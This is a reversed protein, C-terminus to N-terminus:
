PAEMGLDVLAARVVAVDENLKWLKGTGSLVVVRFCTPDKFRRLANVCQEATLTVNQAHVRQIVLLKKPFRHCVLDLVAGRIQKAVRSEVEIAIFGAATGDLFGGTHETGGYDVRCASRSGDFHRGAAAEIVRKGYADHSSIDTIANPEDMSSHATFGNRGGEGVTREDCSIETVIFSDMQKTM